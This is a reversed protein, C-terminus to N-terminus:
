PFLQTVAAALLHATSHRYVYLAEPGDPTLIRLRASANLPYSLDVLTDDVYAALAKRVVGGPLAEQAFASVPTGAHVSRESGDPLTITVQSM